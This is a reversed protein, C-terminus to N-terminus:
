KAVIPSRFFHLAGPPLTLRQHSEPVLGTGRPSRKDAESPVVILPGPTCSSVQWTVSPSQLPCLCMRNMTNGSPCLSNLLSRALDEKFICLFTPQLHNYLQTNCGAEISQRHQRFPAAAKKRTMRAPNAFELSSPKAEQLLHQIRRSSPTRKIEPTLFPVWYM